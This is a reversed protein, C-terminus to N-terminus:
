FRHGHLNIGVVSPSKAIPNSSLTEDDLSQDSCIEDQM